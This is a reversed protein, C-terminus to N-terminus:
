WWGMGGGGKCGRGWGRQQTGSRGQQEGQWGAAVGADAGKKGRGLSLGQARHAHRQEPSQMPFNQMQASYIQLQRPTPPFRPLDDTDTPREAGDEACRESRRSREGGRRVGRPGGGGAGALMLCGGVHTEERGRGGSGRTRDIKRKGVQKEKEVSITYEPRAAQQQARTPANERRARSM